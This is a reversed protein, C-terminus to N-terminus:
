PWVQYYNVGLLTVGTGADRCTYIANSQSNYFVWLFIKKKINTCTMSPM